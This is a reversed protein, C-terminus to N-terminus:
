LIVQGGIRATSPLPGFSSNRSVYINGKVTFIGCFKLMDVNRLFLDGEIVTNCPLTYKRMNQLYLNGRIKAGCSLKNEGPFEGDIFVNGNVVYTKKEAKFTNATTNCCPKSVKKLPLTITQVSQKTENEVKVIKKQDVKVDTKATSVPVSEAAVFVVTKKGCGTMDIILMSFLVIISMLLTLNVLGILDISRIWSWIKSFLRALIRFPWSIVNWVKTWFTSKNTKRAKTTNKKAKEVRRAAIKM